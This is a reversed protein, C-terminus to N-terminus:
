KSEFERLEPFIDRMDCKILKGKADKIFVGSKDSNFEVEINL